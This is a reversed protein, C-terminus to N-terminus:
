IEGLESSCGSMPSGISSPPLSARDSSSFSSRQYGRSDCSSSGEWLTMDTDYLDGDDYDPSADLCRFSDSYVTPDDEEECADYLSAPIGTTSIPALIDEAFDRRLSEYASFYLDNPAVQSAHSSKSGVASPQLPDYLTYPMSEIDVSPRAVGVAMGGPAPPHLRAQALNAPSPPPGAAQQHGTRM